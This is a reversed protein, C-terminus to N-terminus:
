MTCPHILFIHWSFFHIPAINKFINVIRIVYQVRKEIFYIHLVPKKECNLLRLDNDPKATMRFTMIFWESEKLTMRATLLKKWKTPQCESSRFPFIAFILTFRIPHGNRKFKRPIFVFLLAVFVKKQGSYCSTLSLCWYYVKSLGKSTECPFFLTESMWIITCKWNEWGHGVQSILEKYVGFFRAIFIKGGLREILFPLTIFHFFDNNKALKPLGSLCLDVDNYM